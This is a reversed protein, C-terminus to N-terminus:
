VVFTVGGGRNRRHAIGEVIRHVTEHRADDQRVAQPGAVPRWREDGKGSPSASRGPREVDAGIAVALTVVGSGPSRTGTAAHSPDLIVPLHTLENESGRSRGSRLTIARRRESPGYAASVCCRRRIGMRVVIYEASMLLEKITSSMGRKLLVPRGRMQGADEAARLKAYQACRDSSHRRLCAVLDVDRDSMVETIIGLGTARRAKDLM